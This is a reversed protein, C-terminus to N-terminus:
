IVFERFVARTDLEYELGVVPPRALHWTLGAMIAGRAAMEQDLVPWTDHVTYLQLATSDSWSFGLAGMRREMEGLTWRAKDGIAEISVDGKRVASDGYSPKGEPSEASGAVVFTARAGTKAPVTYSFAYISPQAPASRLPCVNSRAIPNLDNRYINWAKLQQVYLTNFELFGTDSLPAPSRLECACLATQPRGNHQLHAAIAQFGEALPLPRFFRVREIEFGPEAAVGASYQFVGRIFRYDGDPFSIIEAM